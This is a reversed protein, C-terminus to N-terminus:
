HIQNIKQAQYAPFDTSRLNNLEEDIYKSIFTNLNKYSKKYQKEEKRILRQIKDSM